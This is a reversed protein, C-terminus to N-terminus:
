QVIIELEVFSRGSATERFSQEPQHDPWALPRDMQKQRYAMFGLGLLRPDDNGM